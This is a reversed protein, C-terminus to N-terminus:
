LHRCNILRRAEDVEFRVPLFHQVTWMNTRCHETVSAVSVTCDEPALALYPLIQDAMHEDLCAGSDLQRLLASACERGVKEAPRGREGLTCAGLVTHECHAAAFVSTGTSLSQVYRVDEDAAELLARAGEVQREAVRARSLDMTTLSVVHLAKLGGREIMDRAHLLGPRVQVRLEGGGKPYFGHKRTTIALVCGLRALHRAFVHEFYDATPSWLTHTGGTLTVHAAHGGGALPILLAQLVLTLSGATGVDIRLEKPPSLERPLFELDMSGLEAGSVSAGCVQAVARVGWLHQHALGPSRRGKRINSIRLPQGTLASLGLATRLIQGGGELYGGDLEVM